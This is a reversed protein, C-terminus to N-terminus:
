KKLIRLRDTIGKRLDGALYLSGCVVIAGGVPDFAAFARDLADAFGSAPEAATGCSKWLEALRPAELGRDSSPQVTIVRSFVGALNKVASLSDKDNLMGMVALVKKGPLYRRVANALAATGEPNHGGDLIVPPSQSLVELRAPLYASAFGQAVASVPLNWGLSCLVERTALATKANKLQHEGLFPLCFEQGGYLLVTGSLDSRVPRVSVESAEFLRSRREGATKRIVALAEPPEDPYCVTPCGEKIIGCKEHAIRDLTDGLIKTHDLSISAIVSVLPKEIVNTADLRGGLGVELGVVDCKKRAFWLFAMATILEFEALPRGQAAMEDAQPLVARALSVLEEAPIMTGNLQMRECFDCVHPSLYLGTRYGAKALMSAVLVCTTGKGNTGAVHIFNMGSQPNGLRSLMERIRELGPKPGFRHCSEIRGVAEEYDM